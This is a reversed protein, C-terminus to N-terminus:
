KIENGGGQRHECKTAPRHASTGHASAEETETKGASKKRNIVRKQEAAVTSSM